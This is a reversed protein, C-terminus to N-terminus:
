SDTSQWGASIVEEGDIAAQVLKSLQSKAEHMNIQMVYELVNALNALIIAYQM